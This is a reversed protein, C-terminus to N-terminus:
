LTSPLSHSLSARSRVLPVTEARQKKGSPSSQKSAGHLYSGIKDQMSARRTNQARFAVKNLSRTSSGPPAGSTASPCKRGPSRFRSGKTPHARRRATVQRIAGQRKDWGRPPRARVGRSSCRVRLREFAHSACHRFRRGVWWRTAAQCQIQSTRLNRQTM